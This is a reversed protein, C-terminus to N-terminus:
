YTPRGGLNKAATDIGSNVATAENVVAEFGNLMETYVEALEKYKRGIILARIDRKNAELKRIEALAKELLDNRRADANKINDRSAELGKAVNRETPTGEKFELIYKEIETLANTMSKHTAGGTQFEAAMEKFKAILLETDQAATAINKEITEVQRRKSAILAGSAEIREKLAAVRAELATIIEPSVV